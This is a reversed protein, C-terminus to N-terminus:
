KLCFRYMLGVLTQYQAGLQTGNLKQYLPIETQAYITLRKHMYNIQPAFAVKQSGTSNIDVNYFALMDVLKDAKMKGVFEAKLQMTVGIKHRFTKSVFLGLSGYDGFRQGLPNWGKYVYMMSTFFKLNKRPYARLAFGYFIFDNSGTTTQVTPPSTTYYNLGQKDTYIVTSDNYAGLPIKMGMGCTIESAVSDNAKNYIDYRPFIILDGIGHSKTVGNTKSDILQKDLFYGTEVSITFTKSLGYAVKFYEYNNSFKNGIATDKTGTFFKDSQIYQHSASVELNKAPLVGQSVGGAIPSGSGGSCCGQSFSADSWAFFMFVVCLLQKSILVEKQNQNFATQNLYKITKYILDSNRQMSM